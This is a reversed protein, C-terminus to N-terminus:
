AAIESAQLASLVRANQAPTGLSIRLADGLQPAARQDRVVIGASLLAAFARDADVFRVLLYNGASPYVRRVGPATTLAAALADREAITETVRAQTLALADPSLGALALDACPTPVPYPAQCRRLVGILDPHGIAVGIRAAALAHAKSLTRLVVLNQHAALLTTASAADAFEIYAEDVVVIARGSLADALHDIEALPVLGGTPNSPSCLFVLKASRALAANRVAAVDVAFGDPGDILPVEVFAAGQLRASVAYMGFVPPTALVADRGPVCLARVLLDIAEDSGRGILLQEVEVGYVEALRAQLEPPQPSPYRRCRGEADGPNALPSENANLWVDGELRQTRASAYGAFDRLDERVLDRVGSM